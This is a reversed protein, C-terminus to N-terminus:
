EGTSEEPNYGEDSTEEEDISVSYSWAYNEPPRKPGIAYVARFGSIPDNARSRMQPRGSVTTYEAGARYDSFYPTTVSSVPNNQWDITHGAWTDIASKLVRKGTTKLKDEDNVFAMQQRWVVPDSPYRIDPDNSDAVLGPYYDSNAIIRFSETGLGKEAIEDLGSWDRDEKRTSLIESIITKRLKAWYKKRM